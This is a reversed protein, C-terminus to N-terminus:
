PLKRKTFINIVNMELCETILIYELANRRHAGHQTFYFDKEVTSIPKRGKKYYNETKLQNFQCPVVWTEESPATLRSFISREWTLLFYTTRILVYFSKVTHSHACLFRNGGKCDSNSYIRSIATIKDPFASRATEISLRSLEETRFPLPFFGSKIM